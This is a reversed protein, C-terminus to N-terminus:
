SQEADTVEEATGDVIGMAALSRLVDEGNRHETISTPKGQMLMRKETAIGIIVGANRAATSADKISGDEIQERTKALGARVVETAELAIEAYEDTLRRDIEAARTKRIQEYREAYTLRWQRLTSPPIGCVQSAKNSDGYCALATLGREIKEDSSRPRGPRRKVVETSM